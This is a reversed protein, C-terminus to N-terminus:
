KEIFFLGSVLMWSALIATNLAVDVTLAPSLKRNLSHWASRSTYQGGRVNRNRQLKGHGDGKVFGGHVIQWSLLDSIFATSPLSDAECAPRVKARRHRPSWRAQEILRFVRVGDCELRM